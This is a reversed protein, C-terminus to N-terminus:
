PVGLASSLGQGTGSADPQSQDVVLPRQSDWGAQLGGEPGLSTALLGPLKKKQGGPASDHCWSGEGNAHGWNHGPGGARGLYKGKPLGREARLRNGMELLQEKELSLSLIKKAADKLKRQLHQVSVTQPPQAGEQPLSPFEPQDKTVLSRWNTLGQVCFGVM